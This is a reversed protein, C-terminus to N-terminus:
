CARRRLGPGPGSEDDKRAGSMFGLLAVWVMPLTGDRISCPESAGGSFTSSTRVSNASSGAMMRVVVDNTRVTTTSDNARWPTPACDLGGLWTIMPRDINKVRKVIDGTTSWILVTATSGYMAPLIVSM